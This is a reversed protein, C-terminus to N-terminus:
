HFMLLIAIFMDGAVLQFRVQWPTNITYNILIHYESKLVTICAHDSIALLM